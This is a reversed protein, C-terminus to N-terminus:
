NDGEITVKSTRPCAVVGSSLCFLFDLGCPFLQHNKQVFQWFETDLGPLSVSQKHEIGPGELIVQTPALDENIQLILTASRDPYEATGIPLCSLDPRQTSTCVAYTSSATEKVLPAGTHFKVYTKVDEDSLESSLWLPTDQDALTLVVAATIPSLLAPPALRYTIKHLTGPRATAMLIARFVSACQAPANEFGGSLYDDM